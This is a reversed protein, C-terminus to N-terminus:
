ILYTVDVIMNTNAPLNSSTTTGYKSWCISGDPRITLLYTNMGGAQQVSYQNAIKPRFELPLTGFVVASSSAEKQSTPQWAGCIRVVDGTRKCRLGLYSSNGIYGSNFTIDTWDTAYLVSLYLNTSGVSFRNVGARNCTYEYSCTGNVDTVLSVIETDNIILDLNHNSLLMDNSTAQVSIIVSDGINPNYDSCWLKYTISQQNLNSVLADIESETYYLDNHNHNIDAKDSLAATVIKNQVPNVSTPSLISDIIIENGGGDNNIKDELEEIVNLFDDKQVYELSSMNSDLAGLEASPVDPLRIDLGNNGFKIWYQNTGTINTLKLNGSGAPNMGVLEESHLYGVFIQENSNDNVDLILGQLQERPIICPEKLKTCYDEEGIPTYFDILDGAFRHLIKCIILKDKVKMECKDLYPYFKTMVGVQFKSERVAKLIKQNVTPMILPEVQNSLAKKLRGNTITMNDTTKM